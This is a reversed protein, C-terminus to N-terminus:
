EVATKGLIIESLLSGWDISATEKAVVVEAQVEAM